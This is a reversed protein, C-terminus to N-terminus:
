QRKTGNGKDAFVLDNGRVYRKKVKGSDSLEMVLQDGDWVFVTKEGNVTKSTRLGEADYTFSVKYNKTLTRVLQNEANYHNVVNKNLRNSGLTM